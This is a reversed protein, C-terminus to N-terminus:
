SPCGGLHSQSKILEELSTAMNTVIDRTSAGTEPPFPELM